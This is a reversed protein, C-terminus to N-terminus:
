VLPKQTLYRMESIVLEILFSISLSYTQVQIVKLYNTAIDLITGDSFVGFRM